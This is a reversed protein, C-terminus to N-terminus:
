YQISPKKTPRKGFTLRSKGKLIPILTFEDEYMFYIEHFRDYGLRYVSLHSNVRRSEM